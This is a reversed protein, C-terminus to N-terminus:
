QEADESELPWLKKLQEREFAPAAASFYTLPTTGDNVLGHAAGTPIFVCDGPRIHGTETGVTMTGTGELVYYVQEPAHSHVRQKGGPKIEVVSTTLHVADSTLASALLYSIIGEERIYRPATKRRLIKM